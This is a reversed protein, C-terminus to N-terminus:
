EWTREDVIKQHEEPITGKEVFEIKDIKVRCLNQVEKNLDDAFEKRDIAEDKM